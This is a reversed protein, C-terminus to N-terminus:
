NDRLITVYDRIRKRENGDDYELIWFYGGEDVLNSSRTLGKWCDSETGLVCEYNDAEFVLQGWRNYIELHNNAAMDVCSICFADNRGDDNPTVVKNSMYCPVCTADSPLRFNEEATCDNQDTVIVGYDGPRLGANSLGVVDNSWKIEKYPMTGGSVSISIAGDNDCSPTIPESLDIIIPVPGVFDFSVSGENGDADTVTVSYNGAGVNTVASTTAGNSWAYTYNPKGGAVDVVLSGDALGNCSIPSTMSITAIPNNVKIEVNQVITCGLADIVTLSCNGEDLGTAADGTQGNCWEFNYPAVGGTVTAIADAEPAGKTVEVSVEMNSRTGVMFTQTYTCVKNDTITVTYGGTTLNNINQTSAGNSWSFSYPEFGGAVALNIMGNDDGFCDVDTVTGTASLTSTPGGVQINEEFFCGNVDSIRVTYSGTPLNEVTNTDAISVPGAIWSYSYPSTGGNPTVQIAGSNDGCDDAVVQINASLNIANTISFQVTISCQSADAIVVTYNGGPLNTPNPGSVGVMDWTYSFPATGGTLNITATGDGFGTCSAPTTAVTASMESPGNVTIGTAVRTCNSADTITVSYTGATANVPRNAPALSADSWQFTYPASGGSVSVNIRGDAAGFCSVDEPTIVSVIATPETITLSAAPIDNKVENGNCSTITVNYVGAPLGTPNPTNGISADSWQYTYNGDGGTVSLSIAGDSLGNCSVNTPTAVATIVGLCTPDVGGDDGITITGNTQTFEITNNANAAERQTPMDTFAIVTSAGDSGIANFCVEFLASGDALTIGQAAQDFWALGLEGSAAQAINFSNANLDPLGFANGLGTFELVTPDWNLSFQLSAIGDFDTVTIPVCFATGMEITVPAINVLKDLVVPGTPMTDVPEEEMDVTFTGDASSFTITENANALERTTPVDTFTINTSAGEAGIVDFCIEFIVTGDALTIGQAAQDFWAVALQGSSTGDLNFSNASLDPLGFSAGVGTFQLVTPDWALSFQMSAIGDFDQVTVPICISSNAEGSVDGINIIGTEGTVPPPPPNDGEIVTISGDSSSFSITESSTALERTTPVDTFTINTNAGVAGIVNFCVEFITTGDALTIGQAAQDFWAVALEGNASGDTNFSNASLDALGFGQTNSFQLVAPDWALSFQMSAIGDFDMATIPVCITEGEEASIEAINIIGEEGTTPPPPTTNAVTVVGNSETFTITNDATAAERQTPVDTFVITTNTGVAGLVTFCIEFLTAGDALTVGQASNDFWAMATQGTAVNTTNFGNATLDPLNFNTVESFQLVAPDWQLSFQLSAIADFDNVTIPVCITSGPEANLAAINVLADGNGTTPPTPPNTTGAEVTVTGNTETFTITSNPNAAERQTPVDTFVVSSTNGVTGLVTFCIEFLTSGDALTVGQASNDFWAMAAQGNTVNTTNFSNANLDPLNFNTVESFQLVAPDWELSFQLSAIVDFDNVTIPLCVTSGAPANLAGINVLNMGVNTPPTPPTVTGGDVSVSGNTETFTITNGPTAAERQTPSDTFVINSATGSAGLVLFCMEFITSGDALTVGQAANDFWAMAAQGAAAQTTNFSNATLDPINFSQVDTFQLVAPDWQLSFQLSAIGDFDNVTVPVCVTSGAPADVNGINILNGGTSPPTTVNNVSVTGNTQTIGVSTTAATTTVNIPTPTSAIAVTSSTGAAGILNFCAQYINGDPATAGSSNAWNVSLQGNATATTGFSSQTLGALNINRIEDFELVAADWNLSYNMATIDTFNAVSVDVCVTTGNDGSAGSIASVLPATNGTNGSGANGNPDGFQAETFVVDDTVVGNAANAIEISTSSGDFVITSGSSADGLVTFDMTFIAEGDAVSVGVAANDFWAVTFFGSASNTVNFSNATLDKLNFNEVADFQIVAPDWKIGYQMSVIDDFDNVIMSITVTEGANGTVTTPSITLSTQSYTASVMFFMAAVLITVIKNM